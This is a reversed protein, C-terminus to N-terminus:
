KAVEFRWAPRQVLQRAYDVLDPVIDIGLYSGELYKSLPKALRGSGCGVDIVYGDKKLGCQILLESEIAGIADFEGGVALKMAQDFSFQKKLSQVVKPYTKHFDLKSVQEKTLSKYLEVLKNRGLSIM